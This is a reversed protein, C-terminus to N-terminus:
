NFVLECKKKSRGFVECMKVDEFHEIKVHTVDSNDLILGCFNGKTCYMHSHAKIM